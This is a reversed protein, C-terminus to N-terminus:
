LTLWITLSEMEEDSVDASVHIFLSLAHRNLVLVIDSALCLDAHHYHMSNFSNTEPYQIQRQIM